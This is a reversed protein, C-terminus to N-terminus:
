FIIVTFSVCFWFSIPFLSMNLAHVKNLTHFPV